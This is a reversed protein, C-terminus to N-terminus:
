RPASRLPGRLDIIPAHWFLAARRAPSLHVDLSREIIHELGIRHGKLRMVEPHQFDLYDAREM